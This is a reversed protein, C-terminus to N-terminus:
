RLHEESYGEIDFSVCGAHVEVGDGTGRRGSANPLSGAVGVGGMISAQLAPGRRGGDGGVLGARFSTSAVRGELAHRTWLNHLSGGGRRVAGAVQQGPPDVGPA